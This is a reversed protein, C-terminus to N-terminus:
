RVTVVVDPVQGVRQLLHLRGARLREDEAAVEARGEGQALDALAKGPRHMGHQAVVVAVRPQQQEVGLSRAIDGQVALIGLQREVAPLHRDVVVRLDGTAQGFRALEVQDAIAVVVQGRHLLHSLRHQGVGALDHATEARGAKAEVVRGAALKLQPRYPVTQHFTFRSAHHKGKEPEQRKRSLPSVSAPKGGPRRLLASASAIVLLVFGLPMQWLGRGPPLPRAYIADLAPALSAFAVIPPITALLALAAVLAATAWAPLRRLLPWSLLALALCAAMAATQKVFEPTLLLPPTWAPPLMALAAPVALLNLTWRAWGPLRLERRHALLSLSLSLAVLPLYFVERTVPIQGSRVEAIFKVYEALDLGLVRLGAPGAPVWPGWYGAAILLWSLLISLTAVQPTRLWRPWSHAM